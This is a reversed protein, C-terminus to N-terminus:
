FWLKQHELKLIFCATHLMRHIRHFTSWDFIGFLIKGFHELIFHRQNEKRDFQDEENITIFKNRTKVCPIVASKNLM